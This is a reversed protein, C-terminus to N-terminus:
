GSTPHSLFPSPDMYGKNPFSFLLHSIIKPNYWSGFSCDDKALRCPNIKVWRNPPNCLGVSLINHSFVFKDNSKWNDLFSPLPMAPNQPLGM